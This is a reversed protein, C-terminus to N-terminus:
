FLKGALRINIVPWVSLNSLIKLAKTRDTTEMDATEVPQDNCYIGPKGWFKLGLDMSLSLRKKPVVRGFGIGAYPQVRKVNFSAHMLGNEDPEFFYDGVSVGVKNDPHTQNYAWVFQFDDIHDINEALAVKENTCYFAGVTLRFSSKKSPYIDFLVKATKMNSRADFAVKTDEWEISTKGMSGTWLHTTTTFRSMADWGIRMELHSSLTTALDIGLGNTGVNAGIAWHRLFLSQSETKEKDQANLSLASCLALAVLMLKKM